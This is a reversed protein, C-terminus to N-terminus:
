KEILNIVSINTCFTLTNNTVLILFVKMESSNYKAPTFTNVVRILTFGQLQFDIVGRRVVGVRCIHEGKM